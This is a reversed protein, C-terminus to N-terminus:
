NSEDPDPYGGQALAKVCVEASYGRSILFRFHSDRPNKATTVYDALCKRAREVEKEFPFVSSPFGPISSCDVGSRGLGNIIKGSGWGREKKASIYLDAYRMDDILRQEVAMEVCSLAMEADFGAKVLKELMGKETYDRVALLRLM